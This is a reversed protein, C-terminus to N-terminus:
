GQVWTAWASTTSNYGNAFTFGSAMGSGPCINAGVDWTAVYPVITGNSSNYYYKSGSKSAAAVAFTSADGNNIFCYYLNNLDAPYSKKAAKINLSALNSATPLSSNIVQYQHVMNAFNRIDTQVTTNNARNQVGNYAVITIAALIGIVVIVILLEVITFGSNNTRVHM